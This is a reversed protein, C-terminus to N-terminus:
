RIDVEFSQTKGDPGPVKRVDLVEVDTRRLLERVRQEIRVKDEENGIVEPTLVLTRAIPSQHVM